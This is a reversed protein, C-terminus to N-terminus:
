DPRQADGPKEKGEGGIFRPAMMQELAKASPRNPDPLEIPKFDELEFGMGSVWVAFRMFAIGLRLRLHWRRSGKLKVNVTVDKMVNAIPIEINKPMIFLGASKSTTAM